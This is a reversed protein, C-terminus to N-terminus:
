FVGPQQKLGKSKRHTRHTLPINTYSVFILPDPSPQNVFYIAESDNFQKYTYMCAYM